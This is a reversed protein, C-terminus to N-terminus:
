LMPSITKKFANQAAIDRKPVCASIADERVQAEWLQRFLATVDEGPGGLCPLVFAPTLVLVSGVHLSNCPAALARM